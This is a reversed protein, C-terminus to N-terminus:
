IYITNNSYDNCTKIRNNYERSSKQIKLNSRKNCKSYSYENM